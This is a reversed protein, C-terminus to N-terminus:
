LVCWMVVDAAHPHFLSMGRWKVSESENDIDYIDRDVVAGAVLVVIAGRKVMM